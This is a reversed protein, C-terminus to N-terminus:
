KHSKNLNPTNPRPSVVYMLWSFIKPAAAPDDGRVIHYTALGLSSFEASHSTLEWICLVVCYVIWYLINLPGIDWVFATLILDITVICFTLHALIGLLLTWHALIGNLLTWHSLIGNLLLEICLHEIILIVICECEFSM